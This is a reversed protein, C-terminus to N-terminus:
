GLFLLLGPAPRPEGPGTLYPLFNFGDIHVKYTRDGITYGAKLRDMVDPMGAAALLTPLWDHHSVIENSVSGANIRGPWRVLWPVRFAGEWNTNKESRFPTTAGDPWSNAHPGNDTGYIVITDGALGLEDLKALVTGVNRDHDIMVDHYPSQWRGSQGVSEPKPHTRLHMHTFNVWIFFPKGAQHMRQMFDVSRAAIDDDITEMRKQTLPGTDKIVQKGVRGYQPDVTPDDVTSAKCDMVGRPGFRKRFNPFEAEKPYDPLEPEEEANLHYLNGYFEDFGHVTPLFENRDGLHNKGFQGTAYGLPKLLDAITPDEARLGLTAGPLGM